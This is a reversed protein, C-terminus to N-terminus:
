TFFGESVSVASYLGINTLWDCIWLTFKSGLVPFFLALSILWDNAEEANSGWCIIM